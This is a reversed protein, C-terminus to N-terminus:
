DLVGGFYNILVFVQQEENLLCQYHLDAFVAACFFYPNSMLVSERAEMFQKIAQAFAPKKFDGEILQEKLLEWVYVFHGLTLDKFQFKQTAISPKEIISGLEKMQKWQYPQVVFNGKPYKEELEEVVERLQLLRKLMKFTSSWRTVDIVAM